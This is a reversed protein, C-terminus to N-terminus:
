EDRKGAIFLAGDRLMAIECTHWITIVYKRVYMNESRSPFINEGLFIYDRLILTKM